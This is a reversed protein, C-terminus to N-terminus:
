VLVMTTVTRKAGGSSFTVHMVPMVMQANVSAQNKVFVMALANDQAHKLCVRYVQTVKIANANVTNTVNVMGVANTQANRKAINEVMALMANSTLQFDKPRCVVYVVAM